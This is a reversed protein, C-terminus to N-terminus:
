SGLGLLINIGCLKTPDIGHHRSAKTGNKNTPQSIAGSRGIYGVQNACCGYDLQQVADYNLPFRLHSRTAKPNQGQWLWPYRFADGNGVIM